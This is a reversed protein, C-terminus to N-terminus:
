TPPMESKAGEDRPLGGGPRQASGADRLHGATLRPRDVTPQDARGRGPRHGARQGRPPAGEPGFRWALYGLDGVVRAAGAAAFVFGPAQALVAQAKALVADRGSVSEDPDTFTVDATYTRAAADRRRDPDREGFVEFLNANLLAAIDTM